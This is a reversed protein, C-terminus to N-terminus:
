IIVVTIFIINIFINTIRKRVRERKCGATAAVAAVTAVLAVDAVAAVVAVAAVAAM